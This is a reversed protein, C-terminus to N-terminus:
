YGGCATRDDAAELLSTIGEAEDAVPFMLCWLKDADASTLNENLFELTAEPYFPSLIARAFAAGLFQLFQEVRRFIPL